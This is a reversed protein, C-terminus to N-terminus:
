RHREAFFTFLTSVTAVSGPNPWAIVYRDILRSRSPPTTVYVSHLCSFSWLTRTRRWLARPCCLHNLTANDGWRWRSSLPSRFSFTTQSPAMEPNWRSFYRVLININNLKIFTSYRPPPSPVPM